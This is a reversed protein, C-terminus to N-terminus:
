GLSEKFMPLFNHSRIVTPSILERTKNLHQIKVILDTGGYGRDILSTVIGIIADPFATPRINNQLNARNNINNLNLNTLKTENNRNIQETADEDKNSESNNGTSWNENNRYKHSNESYM